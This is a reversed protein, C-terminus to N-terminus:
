QEPAKNYNLKVRMLSCAEVNQQFRMGKGEPRKLLEEVLQPKVKNKFDRYAAALRWTTANGM